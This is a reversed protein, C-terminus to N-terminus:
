DQKESFWFEIEQTEVDFSAAHEMNAPIHYWNGATYRQTEGDMTLILEGHTIIGVNETEHSHPAIQTGAPYSAFLVECNEAALKFADFPGEFRPLARIKDPYRHNM